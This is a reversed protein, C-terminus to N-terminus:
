NNFSKKLQEKIEHRIRKNFNRKTYKTVGPKSFCCFWRRCKKSFADKEDGNICKERHGMM